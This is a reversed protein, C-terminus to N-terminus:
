SVHIRVTPIFNDSETLDIIDGYFWDEEDDADQVVVTIPSDLDYKKLLNILENVLM